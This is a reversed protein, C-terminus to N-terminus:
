GRPQTVLAGLAPRRLMRKVALAPAEVLHWSLAGLVLVLPYVIAFHETLTLRPWAFAVAQLRREPGAESGSDWPTPKGRRM